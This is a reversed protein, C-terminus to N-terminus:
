KGNPDGHAFSRTMWLNETLFYPLKNRQTWIEADKTSDSGQCRLGRIQLAATIKKHKRPSKKYHPSYALHGALTKCWKAKRFCLCLDRLAASQLFLTTIFCPWLGLHTFLREQVFTRISHLAVSLSKQQPIQIEANVKHKRSTESTEEGFNKDRHQTQYRSGEKGGAEEMLGAHCRDAIHLYSSALILLVTAVFSM